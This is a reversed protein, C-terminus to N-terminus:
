LARGSFITEMADRLGATIDAVLAATVMVTDPAPKSLTPLSLWANTIEVLQAGGVLTTVLTLETNVFEDITTKVTLSLEATAPVYESQRRADADVEYKAVM